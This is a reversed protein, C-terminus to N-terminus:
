YQEFTNADVMSLLRDRELPPWPQKRLAQGGGSESLGQGVYPLRTVYIISDVDNICVRKLLYKM